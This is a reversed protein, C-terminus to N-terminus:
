KIMKYGDLTQRAAVEWTFNECIFSRLDKNDDNWANRIAELISSYENPDCYYALDGFYDKASGIKTSVINCGQTAAELSVLGPTERLSPLIHIKAKQYYEILETHNKTGIFEVESSKAENLCYNYYEEDVKKGIIKLPIGLEKCARISLHTKKAEEIRGVQLAFYRKENFVSRSIYDKSVGNYVVKVKSKDVGFEKILLEKEMNSNPLIMDALKLIKKMRRYRIKLNIKRLFIVNRNGIVEALKKSKDGFTRIDKIQEKEFDWWIPSVILKCNKNKVKRAEKLSFKDTQINFLHVLDFNNYNNSDSEGLIIEVDVGLNNLENKTNLMQVTDGGSLTLANKRNIFLVKM